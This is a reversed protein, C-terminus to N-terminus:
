YRPPAKVLCKEIQELAKLQSTYQGLNEAAIALIRWSKECSRGKAPGNKTSISAWYYAQKFDTQHLNIEALMQTVQPSNPQIEYARELSSIAQIFYNDQYYNQAQNYLNKVANNMLPVTEVVLDDQSKPNIQADITADRVSAPAKKREPLLQCSIVPLLLVITVTKFFHNV